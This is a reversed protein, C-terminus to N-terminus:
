NACDLIPQQASITDGDIWLLTKVREDTACANVYGIAGKTDAVFRIVAEESNVSHPPHIGNFYLGNWYDIQQKPLSGLVVQSFQNRLHHESRLNVPVIRKGNPWFLQKRLYILKLTGQTLKLIEAQQQTPVIVAIVPVHQEESWALDACLFAMILIFIRM